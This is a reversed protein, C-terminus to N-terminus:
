VIGGGIILRILGFFIAVSSIVLGGKSKGIASFLLGLIALPINFWNIWGLLPLIGLLMGTLAAVGFLRGIFKM